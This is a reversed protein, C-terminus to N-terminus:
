YPPLLRRLGHALVVAMFVVNRLLTVIGGFCPAPQPTCTEDARVAQAALRALWAPTIVPEYWRGGIGDFLAQGHRVGAVGGFLACVTDTDGGQRILADMGDLPADRYQRWAAFVAPVTQYVYGSNGRKPDPAYDRLRRCLEADDLEACVFAMIEDVSQNPTRHEAWALLAIALAGQVAKPDTHTLESSVACWERLRAVDACLVGLVAARMAAGNGASFTGCRRVGFYMKVISKLTAMGIGAPLAALWGMMRRRLARRFAEADGAARAYAQVTMVAHETDDSVMGGGVLPLLAYRRPRLWKAARRPSLGEYPLAYADGAAGGLLAGYLARETANMM